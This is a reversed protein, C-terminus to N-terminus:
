LGTLAVARQSTGNNTFSASSDRDIEVRNFPPGSNVPELFYDDSSISVGGATLSTVEIVENDDLWIRWPSGFSGAPWPFYRTDTVPYFKRHTLGEVARSGAEIARDVIANSRATYKIDLSAMVEE